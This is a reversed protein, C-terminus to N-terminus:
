APLEKTRNWHDLGAKGLRREVPLMSNPSISIRDSGVSAFSVDKGTRSDSFTVKRKVVGRLVARCDNVMVVIKKGGEFEVIDGPRLTTSYGYEHVPGRKIEDRM